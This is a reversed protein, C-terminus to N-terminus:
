SSGVHRLAVFGRDVVLSAVAVSLGLVAALSYGESEM